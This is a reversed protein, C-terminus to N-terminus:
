RLGTDFDTEGNFQVLIFKPIVTSNTSYFSFRWEGESTYIRSIEASICHFQNTENGLKAMACAYATPLSLGPPISKDYPPLIVSAFLITTFVLALMLTLVTKM